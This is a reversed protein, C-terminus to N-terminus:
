QREAICDRCMAYHGQKEKPQFDCGCQWCKRFFAKGTAPNIWSNPCGTEHTATGNIVLVECQDCGNM